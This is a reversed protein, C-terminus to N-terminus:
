GAALSPALQLKSRGDKMRADLGMETICAAVSDPVLIRWDGGSRMRQRLERGSTIRDSDTAEWMVRVEYGLEVLWDRKQRGWGDYITMLAVASFPVYNPLQDLDEIPMPLVQCHGDDFGSERLSARVMEMREYFSFPNHELKTRHRDSPEAFTYQAPNPNTIGVLLRESRQAAAELYQAHGLHVGQFRGHVIGLPVKTSPTDATVRGIRRRTM